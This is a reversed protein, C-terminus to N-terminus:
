PQQPPRPVSGNPGGSPEPTALGHLVMRVMEDVIRKRSPRRKGPEFMWRDLLAMAMVMGAVLRTAVQADFDLGRQEAERRPVVELDDLMRSIPSAGDVVDIAEYAQASILALLLDGHELLLGYFGEVYARAMGEPSRGTIPRAMWQEVYDSIFENIPDIVAREFLQAKTGFHRFLLAESVGAELAIDRTTAGAYGKAAFLSRAADLLLSRVEKSGRRFEQLETRRPGARPYQELWHPKQAPDDLSGVNFAWAGNDLVGTVRDRGVLRELVAPDAPVAARDTEEVGRLADIPLGARETGGVDGDLHVVGLAADVLDGALDDGAEGPTTPVVHVAM